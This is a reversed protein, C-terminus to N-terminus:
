VLHAIYAARDDDLGVVDMLWCFFLGDPLNAARQSVYESWLLFALVKDM